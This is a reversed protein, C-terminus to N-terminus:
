LSVRLDFMELLSPSGIRSCLVDRVFMVISIERSTCSQMEPNRTLTQFDIDSIHRFIPM